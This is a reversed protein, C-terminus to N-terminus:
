RLVREVAWPGAGQFRHCFRYLDYSFVQVHVLNTRRHLVMQNTVTLHHLGCSNIEPVEVLAAVM